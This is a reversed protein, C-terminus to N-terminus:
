KMTTDLKSMKSNLDDMKKNAQKIQLALQEVQVKTKKKQKLKKDLIKQNTSIKKDIDSGSLAQGSFVLTTILLLLKVM